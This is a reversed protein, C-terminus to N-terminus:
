STGKTKPVSGKLLQPLNLLNKFFFTQKQFFPSFYITKYKYLFISNTKLSIFFLINTKMGVLKVYMQKM